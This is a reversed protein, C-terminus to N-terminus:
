GCGLTPGDIGIKRGSTASPIGYLDDFSGEAPSWEAGGVDQQEAGRLACKRAAKFTQRQLKASVGTVDIDM